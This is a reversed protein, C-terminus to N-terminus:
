IMVTIGKCLWSYPRESEFEGVCICDIKIKFKKRRMELALYWILLRGNNVNQLTM